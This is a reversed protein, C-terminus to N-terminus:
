PNSTVPEAPGAPIFVSQPPPAPVPPAPPATPAPAPAPAPSPTASPPPPPPLTSKAVLAQDRREQDRRGEIFGAEYGKLWQSHLLQPSPAPPAPAIAAPPLAPPSACGALLGFLFMVAVHLRFQRFTM